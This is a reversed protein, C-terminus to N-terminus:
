HFFRSVRSCLVLAALCVCSFRPLNLIILKRTPKCIVCEYLM